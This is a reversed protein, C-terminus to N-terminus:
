SGAVPGNMQEELKKEANDYKLKYLWIKEHVLVNTAM